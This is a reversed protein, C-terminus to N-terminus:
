EFTNRFNPMSVSQFNTPHTCIPTSEKLKELGAGSGVNIDILIHVFNRDPPGSDSLLGLPGPRDNILNMICVLMVDDIITGVGHDFVYGGLDWWGHQWM